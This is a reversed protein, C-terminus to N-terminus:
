IKQFIQEHFYKTVMCDLKGLTRSQFFHIPVYKIKGNILNKRKGPKGSTKTLFHIRKIPNVICYSCNTSYKNQFIKCNLLCEGLNKLAISEGEVYVLRELFLFNRPMIQRYLFM